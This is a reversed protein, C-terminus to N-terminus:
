CNLFIFFITIKQMFLNFNIGSLASVQKVFEEEVLHKKKGDEDSGHLSICDSESIEKVNWGLSPSSSSDVETSSSMSHEENGVNESSLFESSSSSECGKEEILDCFTERKGVGNENLGEM